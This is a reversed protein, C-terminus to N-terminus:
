ISSVILLLRIWCPLHLLRLETWNLLETMDSEKRGWPSCCAPRGTWRWSGSNVWVWAWQTPSAMWGDWGRKDGEGGVKLREWCWSRQFSDTRQLLHGVYQLKLKLMLRELSFWSQSGKPHVPQIEKCDLPSELRRWCRLEFADIRWHKAKQITWSECGYM